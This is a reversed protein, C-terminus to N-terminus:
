SLRARSATRGARGGSSSRRTVRSPPSTIRTSPSTRPKIGSRFRRSPWAVRMPSSHGFVSGRYLGAQTDGFIQVLDLLAPPGSGARTRSQRLQKSTGARDGSQDVQPRPREIEARTGRRKGQVDHPASLAEVFLSEQEMVEPLPKAMRTTSCSDPEFEQDRFSFSAFLRNLGTSGSVRGDEGFVLQPRATKSTENRM